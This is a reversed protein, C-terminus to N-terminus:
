GPRELACVFPTPPPFGPVEGLRRLIAPAVLALLALLAALPVFIPGGSGPAIAGPSGPAPLPVDLPAPSEPRSREIAIDTLIANADGRASPQIETRGDPRNLAKSGAAAAEVGGSKPLRQLTSGGIVPRHFSGPQPPAPFSLPGDASPGTAPELLPGVPPLLPEVAASGLSGLLSGLPKQALAAVQFLPEAVHQLSDDARQLSSRPSIRVVPLRDTSPAISEVSGKDVGRVLKSVEQGGAAVQPSPSPSDVSEPAPPSGQPGVPDSVAADAPQTASPAEQVAVEVPEPAPAVPATQVGEGEVVPVPTEAVTTPAAAAGEVVEGIEASAPAAFALLGWIAVVLSAPLAFGPTWHKLTEFIM